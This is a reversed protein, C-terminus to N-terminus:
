KYYEAEGVLRWKMLKKLISINFLFEDREGRCLHYISKIGLKPILILYAFFRYWFHTIKGNKLEYYKAVGMFKNMFVDVPNVPSCSQTFHIIKAQPYYYVKLGNKWFRDCLEIDEGALFFREDFGGVKKITSAAFMMASGSIVEVESEKNLDYPYRLAKVLKQGVWPIRNIYLLDLLIGSLFRRTLRAGGPTPQRDKSLLQPGVVGIEPDKELTYILQDLADDLVITDPNLLFIYQGSATAMGQNNARGFGENKLNAIVKVDPFERGLRVLSDDSSNNDVVIIEYNGAPPNDLISQIANVLFDAVNWNVIIISLHTSM